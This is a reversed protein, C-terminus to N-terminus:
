HVASWQTPLLQTEDTRWPTLNSGPHSV